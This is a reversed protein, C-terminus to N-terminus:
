GQEMIARIQRHTANEKDDRALELLLALVKKYSDRHLTMFAIGVELGTGSPGSSVVPKEDILVYAAIKRM